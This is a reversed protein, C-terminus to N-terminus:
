ARATADRPLPILLDWSPFPAGSRPQPLGGCLPRARGGAAADARRASEAAIADTIRGDLQPSMPTTDQSVLLRAVDAPTVGGSWSRRTGGPRDNKGDEGHM